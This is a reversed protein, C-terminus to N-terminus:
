LAAFVLVIKSDAALAVTGTENYLLTLDSGAAQDKVADVVNLAKGALTAIGNEHAARSDLEAVVTSGNKVSLQFYNSDSAAIAGTQMYYAALLRSKKLLKMLPVVTADTTLAGLPIVVSHPNNENVLSM